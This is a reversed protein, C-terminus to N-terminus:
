AFGYLRVGEVGMLDAIGKPPKSFAACSIVKWSGSISVASSGCDATTYWWSTCELGEKLRVGMPQTPLPSVPLMWRCISVMGNSPSVSSSHPTFM